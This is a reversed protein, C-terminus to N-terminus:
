EKEADQREKITNKMETLYEPNDKLKEITAPAVLKIEYGPVPPKKAHHIAMSRMFSGRLWVIKDKEDLVYECLNWPVNPKKAM